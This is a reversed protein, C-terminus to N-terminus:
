HDNFTQQLYNIRRTIIMYENKSKQQRRLIQQLEPVSYDKITNLYYQKARTDRTRKIVSYIYSVSIIFIFALWGYLGSIKDLLSLGLMISSIATVSYLFLYEYWAPQVRFDNIKNLKMLTYDILFCTVRQM